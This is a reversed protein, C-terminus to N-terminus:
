SRMVFPPYTDTLLGVYAQVRLGYRYVGVLFDRARTPYTGTVLVAFLGFGIVFPSAIWLVIMAVYHPVALFWKYLPKWRSMEGPYAFSMATHATEGDDDAGPQFDFPPYSEHLFLAYSLSRWEYRYTMAIADFLSRPIRKTFLVTVFSILTLLNRLARLVSAIALHPIALLWQVLPRWRAIRADATLDLQVPSTISMAM